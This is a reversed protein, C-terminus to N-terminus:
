DLNTNLNSEYQSIQTNVTKEQEVLDKYADNSVLQELFGFEERMADIIDWTSQHRLDKIENRISQKKSQIDSLRRQLSNINFIEAQM